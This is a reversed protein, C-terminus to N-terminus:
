RRGARRQGAPAEVAMVVGAFRRSIRSKLRRCVSGGAPMLPAGDTSLMICHHPERTM